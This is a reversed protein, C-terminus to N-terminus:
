QKITFDKHPQISGHHHRKKRPTHLRKKLKVWDMALRIVSIDVIADTDFYKLIAEDVKNEIELIKKMYGSM